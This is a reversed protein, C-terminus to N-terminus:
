NKVLKQPPCGVGVCQGLGGYAQTHCEEQTKGEKICQEYINELIGAAQAVGTVAMFAIIALFKKTM